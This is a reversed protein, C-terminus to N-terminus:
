ASALVGLAAAARMLALGTVADDLEGNIAAALADAFPMRITEISEVHEHETAVHTLDRALFLSVAHDVLSPLEYAVGLADWRAAEVGIEERTERQAAHLPSEGPAAGGKVVELMVRDVAFRAQRTLWVFGDDCVVIASAPPAVVLGHEGPAGNPHVIDHAEFAIWSNAYVTRKARRVFKMGRAHGANVRCDEALSRPCAVGAVSM